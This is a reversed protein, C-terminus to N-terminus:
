SAPSFTTRNETIVTPQVTPQVTVPVSNIYSTTRNETILIPKVTSQVTPQATPQVTPQVIPQVTQQVTPQVSNVYSTTRNESIVIPKVSSQVTPQVITQVTQAAIEPHVVVPTIPVLNMKQPEVQNSWLNNVDSYIHLSATPEHEYIKPWMKLLELLGRNPFSSYIFSHPVKEEKEEKEKLIFNNVDIGYYFPVTISKFVPYIETFHEVHWETLCFIKKLKIDVPIVNGTPTLDHIVLYVNETFSKLTVPIYESFRSVICTHV